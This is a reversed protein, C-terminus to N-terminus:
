SGSMTEDHPTVTVRDGYRALLVDRYADTYRLLGIRVTDTPLDIGWMSLEIGQGALTNRDAVLRDGVAQLDRETYRVLRYRVEIENGRYRYRHATTTALASLRPNPSGVTDVEIGYSVIRLGAYGPLRPLRALLAQGLQSAAYNADQDRSFDVGGPGLSTAASARPSGGSPSSTAARGACGSSGVAVLLVAGAALAPCRRLMVMSIM